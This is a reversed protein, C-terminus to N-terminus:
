VTPRVPVPAVADPLLHVTVAVLVTAEKGVLVLPAASQTLVRGPGEPGNCDKDGDPYGYDRDQHQGRHEQELPVSDGEPM